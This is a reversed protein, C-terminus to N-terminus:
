KKEEPMSGPYRFGQIVRDFDALDQPSLKTKASVTFDFLCDNKRLVFARMAVPVGDLTGHADTLLGEREDVMVRKQETVEADRLPNVLDRTLEELKSDQYRDCLSGISLVAGDPKASFVHDSALEAGVEVAAWRAGPSGYAYSSAKRDTRLPGSFACAGLFGTGLLTWLYAPKQM